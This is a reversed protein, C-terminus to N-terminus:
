LMNSTGSGFFHLKGLKTWAGPFENGYQGQLERFYYCFHWQGRRMSEGGSGRANRMSMEEVREEGVRELSVHRRHACLSGPPPPPPHLLLESPWFRYIRHPGAPHPRLLPWRHGMPARRLPQRWVRSKALLVTSPDEICGALRRPLAEQRPPPRM